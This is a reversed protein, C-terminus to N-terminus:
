AISLRTISFSCLHTLEYNAPQRKRLRHACPKPTTALSCGKSIFSILGPCLPIAAACRIIQGLIRTAGNWADLLRVASIASALGRLISTSPVFVHNVSRYGSISCSRPRISAVQMIETVHPLARHQPPWPECSRFKTVICSRDLCAIPAM